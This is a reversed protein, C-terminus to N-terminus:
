GLFFVTFKEISVNNGVVRTAYRRILYPVANFSNMKQALWSLWRMTQEPSYIENKTRAVREFMRQIYIDFLHKHRTEITNLSENEIKKASRGQYALTMISLILPQKVMEQLIDDNKLIQHVGALDSGAQEFYGEIQEPTLPQLLVAGTLKIKATLAEYDAIRSCIAISVTM